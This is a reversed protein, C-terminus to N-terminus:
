INNQRRKKWIVSSNSSSLHSASHSSNGWSPSSPGVAESKWCFVSSLGAELHPTTRWNWVAGSGWRPLLPKAKKPEKMLLDTTQQPTATDNPNPFQKNWTLHVPYSYVTDICLYILPYNRMFNNSFICVYTWMYITLNYNSKIMFVSCFM